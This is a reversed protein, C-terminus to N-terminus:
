ENIALRSGVTLEVLKGHRRAIDVIKETIKSNAPIILEGTTSYVDALVYRGLLFSYDSIIRAPINSSWDNIISTPEYDQTELYNVDEEEPEIVDIQETKIPQLEIINKEAKLRNNPRRKRPPQLKTFGEGKIIVLSESVSAIENAPINGKNLILDIVEYTNENFSVDKVIGKYEGNSTYVPLNIPCKVYINSKQYPKVSNFNKITIANDQTVIRNIPVIYEKYDDKDEVTILSCVRRMKKDFNASVITGVVSAEYISIITKSLYTSITLM